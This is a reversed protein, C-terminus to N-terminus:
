SNLFKSILFDALGTLNDPSFVPLKSNMNSDTVFALWTDDREALPGPSISERFVEIKPTPGRKYGEALILDVDHFYLSAIEGPPMDRDVDRILGLGSPSSLATTHAGAQKHRYTDKGPQDMEFYHVHHKITGIRYGKRRLVPILKEIVSTKGHGPKAIFSIVPAPMPDVRPGPCPGGEWSM